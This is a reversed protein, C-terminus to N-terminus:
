CAIATIPDDSEVEEKADGSAPRGGGTRLLRDRGTGEDCDMQM